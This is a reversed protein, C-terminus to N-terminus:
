IYVVWIVNNSGFACYMPSYKFLEHKISDVTSFYVVRDRRKTKFESTCKNELCENDNRNATNYPVCEQSPLIHEQIYTVKYNHKNAYGDQNKLCSTLCQASTTTSDVQNSAICFQDFM